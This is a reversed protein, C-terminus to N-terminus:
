GLEGLFIVDPAQRLAKHLAVLYSNTDVGVERQSIVSQKRTHIFEVPDEVTVIHGPAHANRYDLRAATTTSKRSGTAGVVLILGQREMALQGLIPPLDLAEFTPLETKM